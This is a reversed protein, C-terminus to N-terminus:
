TVALLFQFLSPPLAPPLQPPSSKINQLQSTPLRIESWSRWDADTEKRVATVLEVEGTSELQQLEALSFPGKVDNEIFAYYRATVRTMIQNPFDKGYFKLAM